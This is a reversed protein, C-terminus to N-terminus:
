LKTEHELHLTITNELEVTFIIAAAPGVPSGITVCDTQIYIKCNFSFHANKVYSSLLDKMRKPITTSIEKDTYFQRLFVLITEDLSVNIFHSPVM